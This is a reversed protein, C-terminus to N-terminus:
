IAIAFPLPTEIQLDPSYGEDSFRKRPPVRVYRYRKKLPWKFMLQQQQQVPLPKEMEEEKEEEKEEEQEDKKFFPIYVIVEQTRSLM